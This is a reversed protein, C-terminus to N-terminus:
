CLKLWFRLQSSTKQLFFPSGCLCSMGSFARCVTLSPSRKRGPFANSPLKKLRISVRRLVSGVASVATFCVNPPINEVRHAFRAVVANMLSRSVVTGRFGHITPNKRATSEV